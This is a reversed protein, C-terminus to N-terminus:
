FKVVAWVIAIAAAITTPPKRSVLAANGLLSTHVETAALMRIRM